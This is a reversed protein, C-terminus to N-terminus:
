SRLIDLIKDWIGDAGGFIVAGTVALIEDPPLVSGRSKTRSINQVFKRPETWFSVTGSHSCPVYPQPCWRGGNGIPLASRQLHHLSYNRRELLAELCRLHVALYGKDHELIMCGCTANGPIATPCIAPGVNSCVYVSDAVQAFNASSSSPFCDTPIETLLAGTGPEAIMDMLEPGLARLFRPKEGTALSRSMNASIDVLVNRLRIQDQHDAGHNFVVVDGQGSLAEKAALAGDTSPQAFPVPDPNGSGPEEFHRVYTHCLHLMLSLKPVLWARKTAIDFVLAVQRSSIQIAKAYTANPEFRQRVNELQLTRIVQGVAQMPGINGGLQAAVNWGSAHLSKSRQPLGSWSLTNPLEATGLLINAEECWGLFCKCKSMEQINEMPLRAIKKASLDALSLPEDKTFELHWQIGEVPHRKVPFLATFFGLAIYGGVPVTAIGEANDELWIYSDVGSIQIMLDFTIELGEGWARSLGQEAVVANAFLTTWCASSGGQDPHWSSLPELAFAAISEHYYVKSRSVYLGPSEPDPCTRIAQCFWQVAEIVAERVDLNYFANGFHLILRADLACISCQGSFALCAKSNMLSVWM